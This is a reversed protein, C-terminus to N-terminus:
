NNLTVLNIDFRGDTVQIIDNANQNSNLNCSFTGSIIKNPYDFRTIKIVGSNPSSLYRKGTSVNGNVESVIIQPNNPGDVFFLDNSQGINYIGVENTLSNLHVYISYGIGQNKLNSIRFAVTTFCHCGLM